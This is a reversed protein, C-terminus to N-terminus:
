KKILEMSWDEPGLPNIPIRVRQGPQANAYINRIYASYQLDPVNPTFFDHTIGVISFCLLLGSLWQVAKYTSNGIGSILLLGLAIEPFLWYRSGTTSNLLLQWPTNAVHIVTPSFLSAALVLGAFLVFLFHERSLNSLVEFVVIAIASVFFGTAVLPYPVHTVIWTYGNAGFVLGFIIQKVIIAWLLTISAGLAGHVRLHTLLLTVQLLAGILTIAVYTARIKNKNYWWQMCALPFYFIVFPGTLSSVAVCMYDFIKGITIRPTQALVIWVTLLALYWQTNTINGRTEATNPLVLLLFFFVIRMWRKPLVTSFRPLLVFGIAFAYVVISVYSFIRPAFRLSIVNALLGVVRPFTQLYGDQPQLLTKLGINHAQALWVRGDEAWLQPHVIYSQNHSYLILVAVSAAFFYAAYKKLFTIM